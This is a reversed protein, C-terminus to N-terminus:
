SADPVVNPALDEHTLEIADDIVAVRVGEGRTSQWAGFARLDEGARGTVSGNNNLHWQQALLPDIGTLLPTDMPSYQLPCSADNTVVQSPAPAPAPSPSGGGGGGCATLLGLMTGALWCASHRRKQM